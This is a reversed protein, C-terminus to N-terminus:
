RPIFDFKTLERLCYGTAVLRIYYLIGLRMMLQGIIRQNIKPANVGM